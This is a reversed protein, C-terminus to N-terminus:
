AHKTKKADVCLKRLQKQLSPGDLQSLVYGEARLAERIEGIGIYNGTRALEFARELTTPRSMRRIYATRRVSAM